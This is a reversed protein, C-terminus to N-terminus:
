PQDSRNVLTALESTINWRSQELRAKRAESWRKNAIPEGALNIVADFNNLNELSDLRTIPQIDPGLVHVANDPRRTLVTFQHQQAFRKIFASGILGTGGTFLINM